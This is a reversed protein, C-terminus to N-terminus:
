YGAFEEPRIDDDDINPSCAFRNSRQAKEIERRAHPDVDLGRGGSCARYLVFGLVVLAVLSVLFTKV